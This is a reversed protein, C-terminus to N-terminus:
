FILAGAVVGAVFVGILYWGVYKREVFRVGEAAAKAKLARATAKLQENAM